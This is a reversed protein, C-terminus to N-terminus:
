RDKGLKFSAVLVCTKCRTIPICHGLRIVQGLPTRKADDNGVHCGNGSRPLAKTLEDVRMEDHIDRERLSRYWGTRLSSLMWTVLDIVAIYKTSRRYVLMTSIGKNVWVRSCGLIQALKNGSPPGYKRYQTYYRANYSPVPLSVIV